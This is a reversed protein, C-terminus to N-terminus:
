LYSYNFTAPFGANGRFVLFLKLIRKSKDRFRLVDENVALKVSSATDFAPLVPPPSKV